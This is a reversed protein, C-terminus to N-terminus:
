QILSGLALLAGFYLHLQATRGLTHNLAQGSQGQSVIQVLHLALPLTLWPLWWGISGTVIWLGIPFLYASLVIIAYELRTGRDGLRVAVTHKGVARDTEIDRLNNVVIIATVLNAVPLAALVMVPAITHAHLYATGLVAILGFFVFAALDGLGHYALPYPGATYAVAGLMSVLGIILIPWGGVSVLYLGILTAAGLVMALAIAMQRPTVLGSQTVRLPGQRKRDAGKLFDFLDNAYNTSIQLLLSASLTAVLVLWNFKGLRAALASGVLVPVIAAPLTRPRAAWWWIRWGRLQATSENARQNM